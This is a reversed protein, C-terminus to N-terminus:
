GDAARDVAHARLVGADAGRPAACVPPAGLRPPGCPLGAGGDAAHAHIGQTGPRPPRLRCRCNTCGCVCAPLCTCRRREGRAATSATVAVREAGPMGERLWTKCVFLLSFLVVCGLHAVRDTDAGAENVASCLLSPCCCSIKKQRRGGGGGSGGVRRRLCDEGVSHATAGPLMHRGWGSSSSSCCAPTSGATAASSKARLRPGQHGPRERRAPPQECVLPGIGHRHAIRGAHARVCCMVNAPRAGCRRCTAAAALAVWGRGRAECNARSYQVYGRSPFPAQQAAM